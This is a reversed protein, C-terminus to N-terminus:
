LPSPLRALGVLFKCRRLVKLALRLEIEIEDLRFVRDAKMCRLLGRPDEALRNIEGPFTLDRQAVPCTPGPEFAGLGHVNSGNRQASSGAITPLPIAAAPRSNIWIPDFDM